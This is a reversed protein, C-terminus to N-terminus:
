FVIAVISNLFQYKKVAEFVLSIHRYRHPIWPLLAFFMMLKLITTAVKHVIHVSLFLYIKVSFADFKFFEHSSM